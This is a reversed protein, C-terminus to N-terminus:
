ARRQIGGCDNTFAKSRSPNTQPPFHSKKSVMCKSYLGSIRLSAASPPVGAARRQVVPSTVLRPRPRLRAAEGRWGPLCRRRIPLRVGRDRQARQVADRPPIRRAAEPLAERRHRSDGDVIVLGNLDLARAVAAVQRMVLVHLTGVAKLYRQATRRTGSSSHASRASGTGCRQPGEPQGAPPDPQAARSVLTRSQFLKHLSFYFLLLVGQNRMLGSGRAARNLIVLFRGLERDIAKDQGAPLRSAFPGRSEVMRRVQEALLDEMRLMERRLGSQKVRRPLGDAGRDRWDTPSFGAGDSRRSRQGGSRSPDIRHPIRESAGRPLGGSRRDRPESPRVLHGNRSGPRSASSGARGALAAPAHAYDMGDRM